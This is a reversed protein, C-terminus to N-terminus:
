GFIAALIYPMVVCITILSVAGSADALLDSGTTNRIVNRIQDIM